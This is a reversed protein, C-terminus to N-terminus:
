FTTYPPFTFILPKFSSELKREESMKEYQYEERQTCKPFHVAKSFTGIKTERKKKSIQRSSHILDYFLKSYLTIRMTSYSSLVKQLHQQPHSLVLLISVVLKEESGCKEEEKDKERGSRNVTTGIFNCFGNSSDIKYM